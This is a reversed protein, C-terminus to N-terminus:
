QPPPNFSPMSMETYGAPIQFSSAELPGEKVSIVTTTIKRGNMDVETRIPMGPFDSPSPMLGKTMAAMGGQQFKNMMALVGPWNPFSAAIWYVVRMGGVECTYEATDYGNIKEKRGTAQPKPNPAPSGAAIQEQRQKQMQEMLQRSSAASVKMYSKQAHMITTVEGTEADTLTTLQPTVDARIKNDKFQMTMEGSQGAGDIKQVITMDAFAGMPVFWLALVSLLKM